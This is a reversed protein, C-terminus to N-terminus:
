KVKVCSINGAFSTIATGSDFYKSYIYKTTVFDPIYLYCVVGYKPDYLRLIKTGSFPGKFEGDYILKPSTFKFPKKKEKAETVASSFISLSTWLFLFILGLVVKKRYGHIKEFIFCKCM